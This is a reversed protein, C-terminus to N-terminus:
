NNEHRIFPNRYFDNLLNTYYSYNIKYRRQFVKPEKYGVPVLTVKTMGNIAKFKDSDLTKQDFLVDFYFLYKGIWKIYSKRDESNLEGQKNVLKLEPNKSYIEKQFEVGNLPMGNLVPIINMQPDMFIWKGLEKSYVETVVHGAGRRVKEVDRSKLGLTRAPIGISNMAAAAVIGYEVCRFQKGEKAEKLITLADSKSPSNSGNHSWQSNTWDLISKIKEFETNDEAVLKDIRYSSRLEKLFENATTDSYQFVFLPNQPEQSYSINKVGASPSVNILQFFSSCGTLLITSCLLILSPTKM